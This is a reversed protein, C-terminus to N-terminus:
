KEYKKVWAMAMEEAKDIEEQSMRQAVKELNYEGRENGFYAAISFWMRAKIYDKEVGLGDGYLSGIGVHAQPNLQVAAKKYWEMAKAYDKEVGMGGHYLAGIFGQAEGSGKEAEVVWHKLATKFDGKDFATKGKWYAESTFFGEAQAPPALLLLSLTVLLLARKM